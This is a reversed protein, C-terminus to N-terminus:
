MYLVIAALAVTAAFSEGLLLYHSAPTASTPAETSRPEPTGWRALCEAAPASGRMETIPTCKSGTRLEATSEPKPAGRMECVKDGVTKLEGAGLRAQCVISSGDDGCNWQAEHYCKCACPDKPAGACLKESVKSTVAGMQKM